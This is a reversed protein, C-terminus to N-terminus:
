IRGLHPSAALVAVCAAALLSGLLISAGFGHADYLRTAVLAVAARGITGTGYTFGLGTGPRGPILQSSLSLSSVIAFEFGIVFVILLPLGIVVRDRLGAALALGAPVMLAAGGAVARRKGWRDTFRVTSASALLEGAGLVFTVVSLAGATLGHDDQLWSGFTVFAAQAAGMLFFMALAAAGLRALSGTPLPGRPAPRPSGRRGGAELRRSLRLVMGTVAMAVAVYAARWSILATLAGLVPVGLLLGGAWSAEVIGVVRGRRAYDVHDAVWANLSLDYVMKSMALVFLAVAFAVIGPSAAAGLAALAVLSAGSLMSTRRPWHDVLRGLFPSALGSLETIAIAVGITALSVGLGAAITALFPAAYRYAANQTARTATLLGVRTRVTDPFSDDLLRHGIM